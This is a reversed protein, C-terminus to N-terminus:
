QLTSLISKAHAALLAHLWFRGGGVPELLGRATLLAAMQKADAMDKWVAKLAALDFTAPKAAFPALYAFCKRAQESLVDTSKRLLASVTPTTEDGGIMDAPAKKPLLQTADRLEQLLQKVGLGSNRAEERLLHGAVQLALPLRELQNALERAEDRHTAVVSFLDSSCV